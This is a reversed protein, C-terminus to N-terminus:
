RVVVQAESMCEAFTIRVAAMCVQAMREPGLEEAWRSLTDDIADPDGPMAGLDAVLDTALTRADTVSLLRDSRNM